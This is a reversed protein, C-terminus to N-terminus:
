SCMSKVNDTLSAALTTMMQIQPELIAIQPAMTQASATDLTAMKAKIDNMQQVASAAQAQTGKNQLILEYCGVVKGSDKYLMTSKVWALKYKRKTKANTNVGCYMKLSGTKAVALRTTCKTGVKATLAEAPAASFMLVAAAALAVFKRM